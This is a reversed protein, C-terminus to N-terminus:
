ELRLKNLVNKAWKLAEIAILLQHEKRTFFPNFELFKYKVESMLALGLHFQGSKNSKRKHSPPGAMGTEALAWDAGSNELMTTALEKSITNTVSSKNLFNSEGLFKIQAGKSYLIRGDIFHNSAGSQSTFSESIKGGASTEVISFRHPKQKNELENLLKLLAKTVDQLNELLEQYRLNLENLNSTNISFKLNNNKYLSNQLIIRSSTKPLFTNLDHNAQVARRIITSSIFFFRKLSKPFNETKIYTCNFSVGRNKKLQLLVKEIDIKKRPAILIKSENSIIRLDRDSFIKPNLMREILDAGVIISVIEGDSIFQIHESLRVPRNFSLEYRSIACNNKNLKLNIEEKSAIKAPLSKKPNNWDSLANMLIDLRLQTQPIQERKLKDPHFGNSILFVIQKTKPSHWLVSEALLLHHHGSPNATLPFYVTSLKKDFNLLTM